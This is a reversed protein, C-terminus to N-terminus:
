DEELRIWYIKGNLDLKLRDNIFCQSLDTDTVKIFISPKFTDKWEGTSTFEILIQEPVEITLEEKALEYEIYEDITPKLWAEFFIRASEDADGEFRMVGDEWSIRGVNDGFTMGSSHCTFATITKNRMEYWFPYYGEPVGGVMHTLKNNTESVIKTEPESYLVQTKTDRFDGHSWVVESKVTSLGTRYGLWFVFVLAFMVLICVVLVFCFTRNINFNNM